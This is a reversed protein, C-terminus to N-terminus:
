EIKKMVEQLVNDDKYGVSAIPDKVRLVIFLYPLVARQWQGSVKNKTKLLGVDNAKYIIKDKPVQYFDIPEESFCKETGVNKHEVNKQGKVGKDSIQVEGTAFDVCPFSYYEKLVELLKDKYKEPIPTTGPRLTGKGMGCVNEITALKVYEKREILFETIEKM